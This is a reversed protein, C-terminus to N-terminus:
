TGVLPVGRERADRVVDVVADADRYPSAPAVFVGQLGAVDDRRSRAEDTGIWEFPPRGPLARLAATTAVHTPNSPDHDGIVGIM